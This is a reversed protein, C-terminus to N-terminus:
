NLKSEWIESNNAEFPTPSYCTGMKENKDAKCVRFSIIIEFGHLIYLFLFFVWRCNKLVMEGYLGSGLGQGYCKVYRNYHRPKVYLVSTRVMLNLILILRKVPCPLIGWEANWKECKAIESKRVGCGCEAHETFLVTNPM